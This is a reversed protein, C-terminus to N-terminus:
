LMRTPGPGKMVKGDRGPKERRDNRLATPGEPPKDTLTGSCTAGTLIRGDCETWCGNALLNVTPRCYHQAHRQFYVMQAGM